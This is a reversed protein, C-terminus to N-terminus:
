QEEDNEEPNNLILEGKFLSELLTVASDVSTFGNTYNSYYDKFSNELPNIESDQVKKNYEKFCAKQLVTEKIYDGNADIMTFGSDVKKTLDDIINAM